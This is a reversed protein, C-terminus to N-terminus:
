TQGMALLPQFPTLFTVSLSFQLSRAAQEATDLFFRKSRMTTASNPAYFYCSIKMYLFNLSHAFRPLYTLAECRYALRRM